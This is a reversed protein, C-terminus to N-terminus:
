ILATAKSPHDCLGVSSTARHMTVKEWCFIENQNSVFGHNGDVKGSTKWPFSSTTSSLLLLLLLLHLCRLSASSPNLFAHGVPSRLRRKTQVARECHLSPATSVLSRSNGSLRRLPKSIQWRNIMSRTEIPRAQSATTTTTQDIWLEM